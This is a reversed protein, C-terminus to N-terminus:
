DVIVDQLHIDQTVIVWRHNTGELVQGADIWPSDWHVIWAHHREKGARLLEPDSLLLNLTLGPCQPQGLESGPKDPPHQVIGM